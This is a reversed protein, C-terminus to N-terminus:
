KTKNKNTLHNYALMAMVWFVTSICAYILAAGLGKHFVFMQSGMGGVFFGAAMFVQFM